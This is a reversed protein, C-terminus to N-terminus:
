VDWVERPLSYPPLVSKDQEENIRLMQTIKIGQPM